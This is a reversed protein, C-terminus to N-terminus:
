WPRWVSTSNASVVAVPSANITSHSIISSPRTLLQEEHISPWLQHHPRTPVLQELNDSHVFRPFHTTSSSIPTTLTPSSTLTMSPAVLPSLHSPSPTPPHILDSNNNNNNNCNVNMSDLQNLCKSLHTLLRGRIAPNVNSMVSVCASVENACETYGARFRGLEMVNTRSSAVCQQRLLMKLYHVTMELIDAKELKSAQSNEQKTAELIFNRLENLCGNIRARRRRELLPKVVKRYEKTKLSIPKENAM